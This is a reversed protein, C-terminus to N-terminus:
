RGAARATHRPERRATKQAPQISHSQYLAEFMRMGQELLEHDDTYMQRLGEVMRGVATSEPMPESEDKLDLQHVVRGLWKLAPNALRFRRLLTEFTCEGGHHSFDVGYMDFPVARKGEPPKEAFRFTARRDIFRRILWASGMRDIGPRPRTVWVRQQYARMDLRGGGQPESRPRREGALLRQLQEIAELAQDRGPAQFLDAAEARALRERLARAAQMLRGPQARTGGRRLRARVSEAERRIAEYEQQRARRFAGAIEENTKSDVADAAFVSAQGKMAEIETKVWEFDERAQPSNPLVYVSNKVAVAGLRQLRRWTQVRVNSPRVPLQYALLLWTGPYTGQIM